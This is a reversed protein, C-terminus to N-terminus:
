STASSLFQKLQELPKIQLYVTKYDSENMQARTITYGEPVFITDWGFGGEGAPHEAISGPMSGEFLELQQGDYYGYTCRAVAGRDRGTLMGCLGEDSLEDLFFKIFTGPLRGFATFELSVDEVIVPTKLLNYAQRVKHEVIKCLDLSQLEEQDVKQHAVPYGLYKALYDAKAQNGTIFTIHKV